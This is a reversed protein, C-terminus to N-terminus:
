AYRSYESIIELRDEFNNKHFLQEKVNEYETSNIQFRFIIEQDYTVSTLKTHERLFQDIAGIHDYDTKVKCEYTTQKTTLTVLKLVESASTSYARILGGAGLKIGGFYRIVVVLINTLNQKLLIELMPYGATRTPEGDDSAKQIRGDDGLVYAFTYHNANPYDKKLETLQEKAEDETIIPIAVSIFRSKKVQIEHSIKEKISYMNEGYFM